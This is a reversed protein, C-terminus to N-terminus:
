VFRHRSSGQQRDELAQVVKVDAPLWDVDWLHGRDLWRLNEHETDNISGSGIACTFCEMVLHFTPYDHEITCLPKLDSIEVNLEEHIERKCAQEGSEGQELKGGPFEWGGKFEGYGRQASLIRGQDLIVAAAVRITKMRKSVEWGFPPEGRCLKERIRDGMM